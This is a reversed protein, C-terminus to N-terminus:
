AESLEVNLIAAAQVVDVDLATRSRIRFYQMPQVNPIEFLLGTVFGAVYYLRTATIDDVSYWTTNDPSVQVEIDAPAWAGSAFGVRLDFPGKLKSTLATSYASATFTLQTIREM